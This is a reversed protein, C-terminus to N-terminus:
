RIFGTLVAVPIVIYGAPIVVSVGTSLVRRARNYKEHNLGLTQFLSWVGHHLHFGLCVMAIIYTTSTWGNQFGIILNRYVDRPDFAPHVSGTTLHLLHYIIYGFLFLGSGVMVRSSIPSAQPKLTAYSVPGRSAKNRIALQITFAFHLILAALLGLRFIWLLLPKAKLAHAYANYLSPGAFAMLNGTLHVILFGFMALGTLAVIVKKGVTSSFFAAMDLPIPRYSM